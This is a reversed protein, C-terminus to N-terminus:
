ASEGSAVTGFPAYVVGADFYAISSTHDPFFLDLVSEEAFSSASAAALLAVVLITRKM